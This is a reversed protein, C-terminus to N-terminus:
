SIDFQTQEAIKKEEGAGEYVREVVERIQELTILGGRYAKDVRKQMYLVKGLEEMPCDIVCTNKGLEFRNGKFEIVEDQQLIRIGWGKDRILEHMRKYSNLLEM